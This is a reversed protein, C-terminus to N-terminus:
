VTFRQQLTAFFIIIMRAKTLAAVINAAVTAAVYKQICRRKQATGSGAAMINGTTKNKLKYQNKQM